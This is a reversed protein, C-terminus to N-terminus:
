RKESIQYEARALWDPRIRIGWGPEQPIQAKGDRVAPMDDYVGYQWPYYDADEISFEVFAGANSLAGTLHLTFVIVPSLNAAHCTIPMQARKAMRAVQLARAVGGLYCIDPQAINMAGSEILYKWLALNNDQEGGAVDLSLANTVARTWDPRWYPCPEELHCVGCDELMKGVEIARKPTYCSNADALLVADGGLQKRIAPAIEETRGPWEDADEGCESGVRFKFAAFGHADRLKAFRLAEERPSIDRRMSSAYVPLMRPKGGLLECVTKESAKGFLDWLATDLGGVARCLYSGPFKHEKALVFDVLAGIGGPDAVERGLAFPAVQRHFVRASIDANYASIQGWGHAGDNAYVRVFGV